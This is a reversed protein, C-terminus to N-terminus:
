NLEEEEFEGEYANKIAWFKEELEENSKDLIFDENTPFWEKEFGNEKIYTDFTKQNSYYLEMAYHEDEWIGYGKGEIINFTELDTMTTNKKVELVEINLRFDDGFDYRVCLKSRKRLNLAILPVQSAYPNDENYEDFECVFQVNKFKVTYLHEAEANFAALVGYALDAVSISSPVEMVRYVDKELGELEVKIVYSKKYETLGNISQLLHESIFDVVEEEPIENKIIESISIKIFMKLFIDAEDSPLNKKVMGMAKKIRKDSSNMFEEYCAELMPYIHNYFMFTDRGKRDLKVICCYEFFHYM